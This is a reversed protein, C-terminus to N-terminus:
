VVYQAGQPDDDGPTYSTRIALAVVLASAGCFFSLFHYLRTTM